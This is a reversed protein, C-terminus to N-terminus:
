DLIARTITKNKQRIPLITVASIVMVHDRSMAVSVQSAWVKYGTWGTQGTRIAVVTWASGVKCMTLTNAGGM